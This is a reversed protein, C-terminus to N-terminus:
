ETNMAMSVCSVISGTRLGPAKSIYNDMTHPIDELVHAIRLMDVRCMLAGNESASFLGMADIDDM